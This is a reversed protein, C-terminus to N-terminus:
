LPEDLMRGELLELLPKINGGVNEVKIAPWRMLRLVCCPINRKKLDRLRKSQLPSLKNYGVKLEMWGHWDHLAVYYDPWGAQQAVNGWQKFAIGDKKKIYDSLRKGFEKENM